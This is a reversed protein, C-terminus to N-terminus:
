GLEERIRQLLNNRVLQIAGKISEAMGKRTAAGHCKMLIGEVGCVLAGPYEEYSFRRQLDSLVEIIKDSVGEQLEKQLYSFIFASIGESTKLLVNGTFGDTVLVDVNGQFIDRGEINGLFKIKAGSNESVRELMHFARRVEETGKKSEVGINLLGVTASDIGLACRQFAAGFHAYQVLHHAKCAIFGGVDV